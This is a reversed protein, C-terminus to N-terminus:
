DIGDYLSSNINNENIDSSNLESLSKIIKLKSDKCLGYGYKIYKLIRQFTGIPYNIKDDIVLRRLHLHEFFDKHLLCKYQNDSDKFYAFKTIDFDFDKIIEEPTGFVKRILEIYVGNIDDKKYYAVM